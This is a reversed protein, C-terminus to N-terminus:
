NWIIDIVFFLQFCSATSFQGAANCLFLIIWLNGFKEPVNELGFGASVVSFLRLPIFRLFVIQQCDVGNFLFNPSGEASLLFVIDKGIVFLM